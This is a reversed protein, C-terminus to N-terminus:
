RGGEVSINAVKAELAALADAASTGYAGVTRGVGIKVVAQWRRDLPLFPEAVQFVKAQQRLSDSQTASEM